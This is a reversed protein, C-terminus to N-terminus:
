SNEMKKRSKENMKRVKKCISKQLRPPFHKSLHQEKSALNKSKEAAGTKEITFAMTPFINKFPPEEVTIHFTSM